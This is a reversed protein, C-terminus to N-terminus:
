GDWCCRFGIQKDRTDRRIPAVSTCELSTAPPTNDADLYGGGRQGCTGAANSGSCANEWERVNGSMDYLNTYGGQCLALSAVPVTAVAAGDVGQCYMGQYQNGYPYRRAGANSCARYWQSQNADAASAVPVAGGAIAGCLRKGAAQCYAYADCWDICSVPYFARNVPDYPLPATCTVSATAPAFSTNWTCDAIQTSPATPLFAGYQQNTVETQDICYFGGTPKPVPIM